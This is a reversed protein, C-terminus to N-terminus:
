LQYDLAIRTQLKRAQRFAEKLIRRDLGNLTDPDVYNDLPLGRSAQQRHRRMRLLTVFAFADNWAAAEDSTVVAADALARLRAPTNTEGVGHALAMLRTGDVMPLTGKLKLDIANRHEGSSVTVFDRVLGLPPTNRLANEALQRQFRRNESVRALLFSRLEEVPGRDGHLARLDFFISSKLLEEPGGQDIWDAFRARWEEASLCCAPNSAMINGKCLPFGIAALGENIRRALPLLRARAADATSGEPVRFLIGNDQDTKLTQERRGESGFALWTFPIVERGERDLELQIVRRALHDNLMTIIQTLQEVAVGQALMQDILQHVDQGHRALAAIDPARVIARTLNVLGVRQLSFLDRESVVGVLRGHDVVCVHSFGRRAMLVAAEFAPASPPLSEPDPTMVQAIPTDIDVGRACIRSLLDHLTFIGLPRRAEDVVVISGVREASMTELAARLPIDPRCTVPTRRLLTGLAASFPADHSVQTALAGQMGTLAQDLLNAMRRSCFDHFVPSAALLQDFDDRDLEYCFTDEVARHVTHVPRRALLAGVPFCEGAVLEWAGEEAPGRSATEGRVRGQKIIYFRRAPGSDPDAVAEGRPYFGLKLRKALFELHQPAMRDFPAHQTLFEIVPALVHRAAAPRSNETPSSM